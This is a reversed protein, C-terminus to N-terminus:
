VTKSKDTSCVEALLGLLTNVMKKVIFVNVSFYLSSVKSLLGFSLQRPLYLKADTLSATSSIELLTRCLQRITREHERKVLVSEQELSKRAARERKWECLGYLLQDCIEKWSLDCSEDFCSHFDKLIQSEGLETSKPDLQRACVNSSFEKLSALFNSLTLNSRCQFQSATSIELKTPDCAESLTRMRTEAALDEHCNEDGRFEPAWSIKMIQSPPTSSINEEIISESSSWACTDFDFFDERSVKKMRQMKDALNALESDKEFLKKALSQNQKYAYDLENGYNNKMERLKDTLENRCRELKKGSRNMQEASRSMESVLQQKEYLDQEIKQIEGALRGTRDIESEYQQSTPRSGLEEQLEENMDKLCQFEFLTKRLKADKEHLESDLTDFNEVGPKGVDKIWNAMSTIANALQETMTCCDEDSSNSREFLGATGGIGPKTKYCTESWYITESCRSM